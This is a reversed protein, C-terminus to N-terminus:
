ASCPNPVPNFQIARYLAQGIMLDFQDFGCESSDIGRERSTDAFQPRYTVCLIDGDDEAPDALQKGLAVRQVRFGACLFAPLYLSRGFADVRCPASNQRSASVTEGDVGVLVLAFALKVIIM